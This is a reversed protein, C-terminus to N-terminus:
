LTGNFPEVKSTHAQRGLRFALPEALTTHCGSLILLTLLFLSSHADNLLVSGGRVLTFDFM